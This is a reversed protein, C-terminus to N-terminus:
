ACAVEVVARNVVTEGNANVTVHGQIVIALDPASGPGFVRIRQFASSRVFGAGHVAVVHHQPGVVAHYITGTEQGVAQIGSVALHTVDTTNGRPTATTHAVTHATGTITIAEDFCPDDLVLEFPERAADTASRAGGAGQAAVVGADIMLACAIALVLGACRVTHNVM